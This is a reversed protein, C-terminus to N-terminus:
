NNGADPNRRLINEVLKDKVQGILDKRMENTKKIKHKIDKVVMSASNASQKHDDEIYATIYEKKLLNNFFHVFKTCNPNHQNEDSTLTDSNFILDAQERLLNYQFEHIKVYDDVNIHYIKILDLIAFAPLSYGRLFNCAKYVAHSKINKFVYYDGIVLNKHLVGISNFGAHTFVGAEVRGDLLFLIENLKEGRNVLIENNEYCIPRIFSCIKYKKGELFNFFHCYRFFIDSFIYDFIQRRLKKPLKMFIKDNIKSFDVSCETSTNELSKLRDNKWYNLFFNFIKSKLQSPLVQSKEEIFYVWLQLNIKKHSTGSLDQLINIINISKGMMFAFWTPGALLIIIAFGMEYKNTAYFDGYGVTVLTTFIFYWTKVFNNKEDEESLGFNLNFNNPEDQRRIILDVFFYWMCALFYTAFLMVIVQKVIEWLHVIRLVLQKYKKTNPKYFVEAIYRSIKMVKFISFIRNMKFVRLLKLFNETNPNNFLHLPILAFFDILMWKKAYNKIIVKINKILRNKSDKFESFFNLIFDIIFLVWVIMDFVDSGPNNNNFALYYLSSIVSYVVLFKMLLDFYQKFKNSKSITYNSHKQLYELVKETKSRVLSAQHQLIKSERPSLHPSVLKRRFILFSEDSEQNNPSHRISSTGLFSLRHKIIQRNEQNMVQYVNM